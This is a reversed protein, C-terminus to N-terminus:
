SAGGSCGPCLIADMLITWGARAALQYADALARLRYDDALTAPGVSGEDGVTVVEARHAPCRGCRVLTTVRIWARGVVVRSPTRETALIM